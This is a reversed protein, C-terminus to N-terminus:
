GISLIAFFDFVDVRDLIVGGYESREDSDGDDSARMWRAALICFIAEEEGPPPPPANPEEQATADEEEEEEDDEEERWRETERTAEAVDVGESTDDKTEESADCM